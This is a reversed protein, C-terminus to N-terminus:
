IDDGNLRATDLPEARGALFPVLDDTEAQQDVQARPPVSSCAGEATVHIELVPRNAQVLLAPLHDDLRERVLQDRNDATRVLCLDPTARPLVQNRVPARRAPVTRAGVLHDVRDDLAQALPGADVHM